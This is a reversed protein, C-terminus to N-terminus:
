YIFVDSRWSKSQENYKGWKSNEFTDLASNAFWILFFVRLYLILKRRNINKGYSHESRFWAVIKLFGYM